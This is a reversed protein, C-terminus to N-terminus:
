RARMWLVTDISYVPTTVTLDGGAWRVDDWSLVAGTAPDIWELLYTGAPVANLTLTDRYSGPKAAFHAGWKGDNTAHFIYLAYQRGPEALVGAFADAPVGGFGTFRSLGALDLRNMFDLLIKKQPAIVTRTEVGGEEAGRHFEGNLNICGAGGNLMFWWGELRVDTATYPSTLGFGFYDSEVNVIPKRAAYDKDIAAAAPTVYEAAVWDCWPERSFDPSLNQATQGLIHKGPLPAEAKLFADKLELLWPATLSDPHVTISGDPRGVLSPEDCLDFIVNDFGNLEETIKQVYAKQYRVVDRNRPDTTTFLGCDEAEYRGANQVNNGHVMAMLPWCDAYMGNFFAVEVVIDKRLAYEVFATLRNFYDPNWRDLDFKFSPRGPEALAPHAGTQASRIWPLIQRGPRPGLPNGPLYKDPPEFMGGPYIRTLNMGNAALTDLFKVFDFDKDIVAGYHHDSTVFVLPKQKYFFYHPNRSWVSVPEARCAAAAIFFIAITRFSLSNAAITMFRKGRHRSEGETKSKEM